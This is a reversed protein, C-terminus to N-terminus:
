VEGDWEPLCTPDSDSPGYSRVHDSDTVNDEVHQYFDAVDWEANVNWWGAMDWCAALSQLAGLQEAAAVQEYAEARTLFNM